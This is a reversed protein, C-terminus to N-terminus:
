PCTLDGGCSNVDVQVFAGTANDLVGTILNRGLACPFLASYTKLEFPTNSKLVNDIVLSGNCLLGGGANSFIRNRSIVSSGSGSTGAGTEQIGLGGNHEVVNESIVGDARIGLDGNGRVINRAVRADGNVAYIGAFGNADVKMDEVSCGLDCYIGYRGMGRIVGNRVSTRERIGGSEDIGNGVGTNSCVGLISCTTAGSITFGGLDISVDDSEIRLATTNAPDGAASVDLNGTLRYSGRATIEVPFGAADGPFCGVLACAQNIERVGDSASGTSAILALAVCAFRALIM